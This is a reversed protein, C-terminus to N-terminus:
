SLSRPHPPRDPVDVGDYLGDLSLGIGLAPLAVQGEADPQALRWEAGDRSFVEVRRSTSAVLVVTQISPVSLYAEFKGGRDWAETSPSLVELVLTPNEVVHSGERTVPEGCVVTLDPYAFHGAADIQVALDPSYARCPGGRLQSGIEIAANSTILAHATSGGAMAEIGGGFPFVEGYYYEHKDLQEAEWAFFEDPTMRTTTAPASM